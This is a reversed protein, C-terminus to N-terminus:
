KHIEQVRYSCLVFWIKLLHFCRCHGLHLDYYNIGTGITKITYSKYIDCITFSFISPSQAKTEMSPASISKDLTDTLTKHNCMWLTSADFNTLGQQHHLTFLAYWVFIPSFFSCPVIYKISFLVCITLSDISQNWNQSIWPLHVIHRGLHHRYPM